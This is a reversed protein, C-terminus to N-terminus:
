TILFHDFHSSALKDELNLKMQCDALLSYAKTSLQIWQDEQYFKCIDSLLEEAEHVLGLDRLSLSLSLSLTHTHISTCHNTVELRM